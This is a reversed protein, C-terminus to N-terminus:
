SHGGTISAHLSLFWRVETAGRSGISCSAMGLPTDRLLGLTALAAQTRVVASAHRMSTAVAPALLPASTEMVLRVTHMLRALSPVDTISCACKLVVLTEM